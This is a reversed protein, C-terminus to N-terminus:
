DGRIAKTLGKFRSNLFTFAVQFEMNNKMFEAHEVQEEVTNGDISPQNPTRYLRERGGVFSNAAFGFHAPQSAAMRVDQSGSKTHQELAAHFNIDRAKYNPTNVNALNSSLVAARESRLSLASEYLGVANQFSISMTCVM